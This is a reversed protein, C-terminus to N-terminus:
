SLEGNQIVLWVFGILFIVPIVLNMLVGLVAFPKKYETQFLGVLGNLLGLVNGIVPIILFFVPFVILGLIPGDGLLYDIFGQHGDRVDFVLIGAYCLNFVGILSSAIGFGSHQKDIIESL